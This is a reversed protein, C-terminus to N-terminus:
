SLFKLIENVRNISSYISDFDNKNKLGMKEFSSSDVCFSKLLNYLSTKDNVHILWGNVQPIIVEPIAGMYTSLVPKACAMAELISIPLNDNKTPLVFIDSHHIQKYKEEESLDKLLIINESCQNEEIIKKAKIDDAEYAGRGIWIMKIKYNEKILKICVDILDFAGKADSLRGIGIINLYNNRTQTNTEYILLNKEIYTSNYFLKVKNKKKTLNLAANYDVKTPSLVLYSMKITWLTVQKKLSFGNELNRTGHLNFLIKKRFFWLILMYWIDRYIGANSTGTLFAYKAEPHKICIFFLKFYNGISNFVGKIRISDIKETLGKTATNLQIIDFKDKLGAKLISNSLIAIGGFPPPIPTVYILKQKM